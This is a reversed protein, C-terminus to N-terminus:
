LKLHSFGVVKNRRSEIYEELDSKKVRIATAIRVSALEGSQIIRYALGLSINLEKAVEKATLMKNWGRQRM